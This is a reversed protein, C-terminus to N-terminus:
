ERRRDDTTRRRYYSLSSIFLLISCSHAAVVLLHAQLHSYAAEVEAAGVRTLRAPDPAPRMAMEAMLVEVQEEWAVQNRPLPISLAKWVEPYAIEAAEVVRSDLALAWSLSGAPREM